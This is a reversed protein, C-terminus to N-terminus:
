SFCLYRLGIIKIVMCDEAIESCGWFYGRFTLYSPGFLAAQIKMTATRIAAGCCNCRGEGGFSSATMLCRRSTTRLFLLYSRFHCGYCCEERQNGVCLLVDGGQFAQGGAHGSPKAGAHDVCVVYVRQHCRLRSRDVSLQVLHGSTISFTCKRVGVFSLPPGGRLIAGIPPM